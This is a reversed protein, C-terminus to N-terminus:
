ECGCCACVFKVKRANAPHLVLGHEENMGCIERAEERSADRGMGAKIINRATDGLTLHDCTSVFRRVRIIKEVPVTRIQPLRSSLFELGFGAGSRYERVDTRCERGLRNLQGEYM